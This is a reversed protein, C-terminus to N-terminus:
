EKSFTEDLVEQIVPQGESMVTEVLTIAALLGTKCQPDLKDHELMGKLGILTSEYATQMGGLFSEKALEMFNEETMGEFANM